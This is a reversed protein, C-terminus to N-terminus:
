AAVALVLAVALYGLVVLDLQRRERGRTVRALLLAVAAMVLFAFSTPSRM